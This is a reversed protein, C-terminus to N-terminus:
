RRHSKNATIKIASIEPSPSSPKLNKAKNVADLADLARGSQTKGLLNKSDPGSALLVKNIEPVSLKPSVSRVLAVIGSTIPAAMSTGEAGWFLIGKSNEQKASWLPEEKTGGPAAVRVSRAGYNSYPALNFSADLSAVTINNLFPLSAPIQPIIDNDLPIPNGIQDLIGNGAATVIIVGNQNAFEFADLVPRLAERPTNPNLPGGFSLNLIKAGRHIAYYIAATAKAMDALGSEDAVKIPLIKAKPAVGFVEAAALGAVHSGHGADDFPAGDNQVYDWGLYDDVLMNGDDDKGNDPIEKENVLIKSNLFPHNYNVGSDLVAIIQGEGQSIDWAKEANILKLHEFKQDMESLLPRDKPNLVSLKPNSTVNIPVVTIACVGRSDQVFLGIEYHGLEDVRIDFEGERSFPGQPRIEGPAMVYWRYNQASSERGSLRLVQNIELYGNRSKLQSKNLLKIVATPPEDENVVCNPFQPKSRNAEMALWEFGADKKKSGLLLNPQIQAHPLLNAIEIESKANVHYLGQSANIASSNGSFNRELISHESPAIRVIYGLNTNQPTQYNIRVSKKHDNQSCGILGSLIVAMTLVGIGSTRRM